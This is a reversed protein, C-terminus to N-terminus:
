LLARAALDLQRAETQRALHPGVDLGTTHLLDAEPALRVEAVEGLVRRVVDEGPLERPLGALRELGTMEARARDDRVLGHDQALREHEGLPVDVLVVELFRPPVLARPFGQNGRPGGGQPGCRPNKGYRLR